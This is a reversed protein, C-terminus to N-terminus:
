QRSPQGELCAHAVIEPEDDLRAFAHQRLHQAFAAIRSAADHRRVHQALFGADALPEVEEVPLHGRARGLPQDALHLAVAGVRFDDGFMPEVAEARRAREQEQMQVLRVFGVGRGDSEGFEGGVIGLDCVRVLDDAAQDSIELRM